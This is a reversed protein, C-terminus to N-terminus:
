SKIDAAKTDRLNKMSIQCRPIEKQCVVVHNLDTVESQRAIHVPRINVHLLPMYSERLKSLVDTCILQFLREYYAVWKIFEILTM